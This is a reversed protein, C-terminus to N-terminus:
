VVDWRHKPYLVPQSSDEYMGPGHESDSPDLEHGFSKTCGDEPCENPLDIMIDTM